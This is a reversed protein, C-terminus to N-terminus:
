KLITTKETASLEAAHRMQMPSLAKRAHNQFLRSVVVFFVSTTLGCMLIGTLGELPGFIRWNAPLVVDGYGLTTYTVGSFYFATELSPLCNKWYYFGAWISIELLHIWVLWWAVRILLWTMPWFHHPAHRNLSLYRLLGILGAVHIVVTGAVFTCAILSQILM